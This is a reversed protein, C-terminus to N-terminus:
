AKEPILRYSLYQSIRTNAHHILRTEVKHGVGTVLQDWAAETRVYRGRDLKCLINNTPHFKAYVPDLTVICGTVCRALSRLLKQASADDLHHLIGYLIAKTPRVQAFDFHDTDNVEFTCRPLNKSKAIQIVKPDSDFGRYEQYNTKEAIFGTGCGVDLLVDNERSDLLKLLPPTPLGGLFATRLTKYIWPYGFLKDSIKQLIPVIM